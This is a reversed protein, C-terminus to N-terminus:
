FYSIRRIWMKDAETGWQVHWTSGMATDLLIFQFMNKTPYLEFRGTVSFDGGGSFDESNVYVEFEKDSDLNWQILKIIGTATDLKILIHINETPYIKYRGYHNMKFKMFQLADSMREVISDNASSISGKQAYSSSCTIILLLLVICKKM